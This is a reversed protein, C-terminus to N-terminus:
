LDDVMRTKRRPKPSYPNLKRKLKKRADREAGWRFVGLGAATTEDTTAEAQWRLIWRDGPNRQSTIYIM